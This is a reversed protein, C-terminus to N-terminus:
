AVRYLFSVTKQPKVKRPDRRGPRIPLLNKQILMEVNPPKTDKKCSLFYKCISIAMTFNVQYSYKTKKQQKVVVNTTIAECFNYLTLRAFIEQKIYAM